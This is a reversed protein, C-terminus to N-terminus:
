KKPVESLPVGTTWLRREYDAKEEKTWSDWDQPRQVDADSTPVFTPSHFEVSKLTGDKAFVMARVRPCSTYQHIGECFKCKPLNAASTSNPM